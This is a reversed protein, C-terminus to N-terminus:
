PNWGLPRPPADRRAPTLSRDRRVRSPPRGEPRGGLAATRETLGNRRRDHRPRHRLRPLPRPPDRRDGLDRNRHHRPAQRAERERRPGRPPRQRAGRQPAFQGLDVRPDLHRAPLRHARPHRPRPLDDLELPAQRRAREAALLRLRLVRPGGRLAALVPGPRLPESRLAARLRGPRPLRLPEAPRGPDPGHVGARVPVPGDPPRRLPGGRDPAARLEAAPSDSRGPRERLPRQRIRIARLAGLLRAGRLDPAADDPGGPGPLRHNARADRRLRRGGPLRHDGRDAVRARATAPSM